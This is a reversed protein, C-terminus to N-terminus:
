LPFLFLPLWIPCVLIFFLIFFLIYLFVMFHQNQYYSVLDSIDLLTDGDSLREPDLDSSGNGDVPEHGHLVRRAPIPPTQRIEPVPRTQLTSPLDLCPNDSIPSSKAVSGPDSNTVLSSKLNQCSTATPKM